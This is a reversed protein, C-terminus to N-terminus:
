TRELRTGVGELSSKTSLNSETGAMDAATFESTTDNRTLWFNENLLQHIFLGVVLTANNDENM